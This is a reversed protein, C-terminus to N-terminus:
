EKWWANFAHHTVRKEVPPLQIYDGYCKHLYIDYEKMCKFTHGEFEVDIFDQMIRM